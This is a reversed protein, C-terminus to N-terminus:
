LWLTLRLTGPHGHASASHEGLGQCELPAPIVGCLSTEPGERIGVKSQVDRGLLKVAGSGTSVMFRFMGWTTGVCWVVPHGRPCPGGQALVFSPKRRETHTAFM